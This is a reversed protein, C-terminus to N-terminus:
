FPIEDDFPDGGFDNAEAGEPKKLSIYEPSQRIIFQMKDSLKALEKLDFDKKTLAVYIFDNFPASVEIGKMKMGVSQVKAKGRENHVIVLTCAKGLLNKTNFKGNPGFDDAKFPANRWAELHARLKAKDNMSWTYYQGISFPKGDEMRESPLEWRIMVQHIIRKEGQYEDAQTGLDIFAYCIGTFTGAPPQEFTSSEPLNM